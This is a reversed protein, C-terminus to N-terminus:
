SADPENRGCHNTKIESVGTDFTKILNSITDLSEESYYADTNSIGINPNIVVIHNMLWEFVNKFFLLKSNDEYKKGRNMESLFLQTNHGAFDEAYVSFRNKESTTPNVGDGLVPAKDKERLFLNHASGFPKGM